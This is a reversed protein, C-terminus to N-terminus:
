PIIESIKSFTLGIKAWSTEVKKRQKVCKCVRDFLNKIRAKGFTDKLESIYIKDAVAFAGFYTNYGRITQM